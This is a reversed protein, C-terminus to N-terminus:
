AAPPGGSWVCRKTPPPEEDEPGMFGPPGADEVGLGAGIKLDWAAEQSGPVQLTTEAGQSFHPDRSGGANGEQGSGATRRGSAMVPCHGGGPIVQASGLYGPPTQGQERTTPLSRPGAQLSGWGQGAGVATGPGGGGGSPRRM